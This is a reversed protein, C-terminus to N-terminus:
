VGLSNLFNIMFSGFEYNKLNKAANEGCKAYFITAEQAALFYDSPKAVALFAGVVASFLCGSGTIRPFMPSGYNFSLVEEGNSVFDM